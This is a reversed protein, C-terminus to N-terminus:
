NPLAESYLRVLTCWESPTFQHLNKQIKKHFLIFLKDRHHGSINFSYLIPVIADKEVRNANRGIYKDLTEYFEYSGQNLSSYTTLLNIVDPLNMHQKQRIVETEIM